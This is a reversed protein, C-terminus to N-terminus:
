EMNIRCKKKSSEVMVVESNSAIKLFHDHFIGLFAHARSKSIRNLGYDKRKEDVTNRVEFEILIQHL